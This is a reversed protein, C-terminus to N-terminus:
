GEQSVKQLPWVATDQQEAYHLLPEGAPRPLGQGELMTSRLATLEAQRLQWPKHHIRARYLEGGAAAYLCYREVLYFELSGEEAEGWPEGKRWSADLEAPWDPCGIRRSHYFIEGGAERFSMAAHRYPLRYAASAGAVALLSDADLSFFWVGPVGDHHVYTRVNVEQFDSLWPLPPLFVPRLNRVLFPTIGIWAHGDFTDLQLPDPVQPRLLEPPLKWHMFLLKRWSQYMIPLGRPRERLSLRDIGTERTM